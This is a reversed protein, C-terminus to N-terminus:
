PRKQAIPRPHRILRAMGRTDRVEFWHAYDIQQRLRELSGLVIHAQEVAASAKYVRQREAEDTTVRARGQLQYTAKTEEDRYMLAVKPNKQLAHLMGGQANRVWLALQDDSFVQLSGRFSLVPKNERNVVALLMPNGTTLGGNVMEKIEPTLVIPM